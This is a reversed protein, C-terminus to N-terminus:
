SAVAIAAHAHVRVDVMVPIRLMNAIISHREATALTQHAREEDGPAVSVDVSLGLSTFTAGAPGKDLVAVGTGSWDYVDLANRRAYASFTAWLCELTSAVLLQEPSWAHDTGGFQPSPGAALPARPPALLRGGALQVTYRHPFSAPTTM